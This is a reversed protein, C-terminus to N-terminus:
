ATPFPGYFPGNQPEHLRVDIARRQASTNEDDASPFRSRDIAPKPTLIAEEAVGLASRVRTPSTMQGNRHIKVLTTMRAKVVNTRRFRLRQEEQNRVIITIGVGVM